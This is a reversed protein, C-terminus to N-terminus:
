IKNREYVIRGDMRLEKCKENIAKIEQMTTDGCMGDYEGSKYYTKVDKQFYYVNDDDKKYKIYNGNDIAKEYGLKEFMMDAKSM